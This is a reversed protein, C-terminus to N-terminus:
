ERGYLSERKVPQQPATAGPLDRAIEKAPHSSTRPAPETDASPEPTRTSTPRPKSPSRRKVESTSPPSRDTTARPLQDFRTIELTPDDPDTASEGQEPEANKPEPPKTATTPSAVAATPATTAQTTASKPEEPADLGRRVVIMGGVVGAVAVAVLALRLQSRRRQRAHQEIDLGGSTVSLSIETRDPAIPEPLSPSTQISVPIPLSGTSLHPPLGGGSLLGSRSEVTEPMAPPPLWPGASPPTPVGHTPSSTTPTSVALVAALEEVAETASAFREGPVRSTARAFWEDFEPSLVVGEREARVSPPEKPGKVAVSAFAFPNECNQHEDSWYHTGVLMTYALMGLAYIDTAPSVRGGARFQEPAMYIPTGVTQTHGEGGAEMPMVKAVGFDLVKVLPSGDERHTLFLNSAKLDRHVISSRHTRDLALAAHWLYTVTENASFRGLRVLRQALDEGELLEMVLYPAKSKEDVGADLIDVVYESGIQAALKSELMFRERLKERQVTHGLMVKLACRRETVTHVAEYVAGMGGSAVCRVIRYRDAFVEGAELPFAAM